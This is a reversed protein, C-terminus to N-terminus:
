RILGAVAGCFRAAQTDTMATVNVVGSATMHIAHDRALTEIGARDLDFRTFLGRETLLHNWDRLPPAASLGDFLLKRMRGIRERIGAVDREWAARLAPDALVTAIVEAGHAPPRSYSARALRRAAFFAKRAEDPSEGVLTLSGVREKYLEFSKSFSAVVLMEPCERGFIRVSELDEHIGDAYGLFAIDLVPVLGRERVRRALATWQAPSPDRGTPNHCCAHFLVAEGSPAAGVGALIRDFALSRSAPEYWTYVGVELGAGRFVAHHNDWTPNPLWIRKAGLGALLEGALRLAGTGGPAQLTAARGAAIASSGAGLLLREAERRFPEHGAFDTYDKTEERALVRSEAEKVCALIPTRGADDRFVGTALLMREPRTDRSFREQATDLAGAPVPELREFM